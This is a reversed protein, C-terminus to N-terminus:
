NNTIEIKDFEKELVARAEPIKSIRSVEELLGAQNQAVKIMKRMNGISLKLNDVDMNEMSKIAANLRPVTNRIEEVAAEASPGDTVTKLVSTIDKAEDNVFDIIEPIDMKSLDEAAKAEIREAKAKIAEPNKADTSAQGCASLVLLSTFAASLVLNRM